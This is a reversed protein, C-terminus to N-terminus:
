GGAGGTPGLGGAPPMHGGSGAADTDFLPSLVFGLLVLVAVLGLAGLVHIGRSVATPEGASTAEPRTATSTM